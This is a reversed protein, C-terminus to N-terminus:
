VDDRVEEHVKKAERSFVGTRTKIFTLGIAPKGERLISLGEFVYLIHMVQPTSLKCGRARELAVLHRLVVRLKAKNVM